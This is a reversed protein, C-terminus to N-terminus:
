QMPTYTFDKIYMDNYISVDNYAPNDMWVNFIVAMGPKMGISKWHETITKASKTDQRVIKGNAKITIKDPLWEVEYEIYNMSPSKPQKCWPINRSGISKHVENIEYHVNTTTRWSPCIYPPQAIFLRFYRDNDTWAEMIDIEGGAPWLSRGRFKREFEFEQKTEKCSLWFSPWLNKGRPCMIKAKFTGYSFAEVSRLTGVGYEPNYIKGDWYKIQRPDKEMTLVLVGSDTIRVCRESYWQWPNDPHILRYGEMCTQWEHGCWIINNNMKILNNPLLSPLDPNLRSKPVGTIDYMQRELSKMMAEIHSDLMKKPIILDYM